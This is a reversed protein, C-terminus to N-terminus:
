IVMKRDTPGTIEVRRDQLDAPINTVRWSAKRVDATEPLFNPLLGDDLRQQLTARAALLEAVRDGFRRTLDVVFELAAPTLVSEYGAQLPGRIELGAPVKRDNTM